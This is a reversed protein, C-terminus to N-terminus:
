KIWAPKDDFSYLVGKDYWRKESPLQGGPYYAILAPQGDISQLRGYEDTNRFRFIGDSEVGSSSARLKLRRGRSRLVRRRKKKQIDKGPKKGKVSKRFKLNM